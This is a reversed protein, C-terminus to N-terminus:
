FIGRRTPCTPCYRRTSRGANSRSKTAKAYVTRSGRHAGSGWGNAEHDRYLFWGIQNRTMSGPDRGHSNLMHSALASRSMSRAYTGNIKFNPFTVASSSSRPVPSRPKSNSLRSLIEDVKDELRDLRRDQQELRALVAPNILGMSPLESSPESGKRYKKDNVHEPDVHNLTGGERVWEFDEVTLPASASIPVLAVVAGDAYYERFDTLGEERQLLVTIVKRVIEDGVKHCVAPTFDRGAHPIVKKSLSSRPAEHVQLDADVGGITWGEDRLKPFTVASTRRCPTCNRAEVYATVERGPDLVLSEIPFSPAGDDTRGLVLVASTSNHGEHGAHLEIPVALLCALLAFTRM